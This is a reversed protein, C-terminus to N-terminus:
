IIMGGPLQVRFVVVFLLYVSVSVLVSTLFMEKLNAAGMMKMLLFVAVPTIMAFGIIRMMFVYGIILLVIKAIGLIEYKHIVYDCKELCPRILSTVLFATNIIMLLVFLLTPMFSSKLTGPMNRDPLMLIQWFYWIAFIYIIASLIINIKKM